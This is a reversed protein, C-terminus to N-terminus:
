CVRRSRSFYQIQGHLYISLYLEIVLCRPASGSCVWLQLAGGSLRAFSGGHQVGRRMSYTSLRQCVPYMYEQCNKQIAHRAPSRQSGRQSLVVNNNNAHGAAWAVGALLCHTVTLFVLQTSKVLRGPREAWCRLTLHLFFDEENRQMSRSGATQSPLSTQKEIKILSACRKPLFFVIQALLMNKPGHLLISNFPDLLVHSVLLEILYPHFCNLNWPHRRIYIM